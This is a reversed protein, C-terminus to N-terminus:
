VPLNVVPVDRQAFGGFEQAFGNATQHGLPANGIQPDEREAAEAEPILDLGTNLLAPVALM